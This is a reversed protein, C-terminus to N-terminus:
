DGSERYYQSGFKFVHGSPLVMSNDSTELFFFRVVYNVDVELRSLMAFGM